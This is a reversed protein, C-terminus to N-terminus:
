RVAAHHGTRILRGRALGGTFLLQSSLVSMNREGAIRQGLANFLAPCESTAHHIMPSSISLARPSTTRTPLDGLMFELMRPNQFYQPIEAHGQGPVVILDAEGGMAVYRDHIVQSNQSLPVVYDADGHIHLIPVGADRLPQLNDIPNYQTLNAALEQESMGYAWCATGLGPYSRLDGVPYIGAIRSVKDANGSAAWNYLMLGGRSQPVLCAKPDLQYRAILTDYFASYAATGAPSGYSEGVDIGCIWFGKQVLQTFYWANASNPYQNIFTPAYWAWPRSGDPAATPPEIVFATYSGVRILTRNGGYVTDAVTPKGLLGIVIPVTLILAKTTYPRDMPIGGHYIYVMVWWNVTSECHCPLLYNIYNTHRALNTRPPEIPASFAAEPGATLRADSYMLAFMSRSAQPARRGEVLSRALLIPTDRYATNFARAASLDLPRTRPPSRHRITGAVAGVSEDCAGGVATQSRFRAASSLSM